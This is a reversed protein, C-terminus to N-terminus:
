CFFICGYGFIARATLRVPAVKMVPITKVNRVEQRSRPVCTKRLRGCVKPAPASPLFPRGDRTRFGYENM